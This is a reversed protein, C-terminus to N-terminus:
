DVFDVGYYVIKISFQETSMQKEQTRTDVDAIQILKICASTPVNETQFYKGDLWWQPNRVRFMKLHLYATQEDLDQM